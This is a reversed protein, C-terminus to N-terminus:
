ITKKLADSKSHVQFTEVSLDAMMKAVPSGELCLSYVQWGKKQFAKAVRVPYLELGGCGRSLCM